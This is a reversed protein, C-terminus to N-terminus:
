RALEGKKPGPQGASAPKALDRINPFLSGQHNPSDIKLNTLLTSITIRHTYLYKKYTLYYFNYCQLQPEQQKQNLHDVITNSWTSEFGSLLTQFIILDSNRYM